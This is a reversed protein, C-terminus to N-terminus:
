LCAWRLELRDGHCLAQLCFRWPGSNPQSGELLLALRVTFFDLWQNACSGVTLGSEIVKSTLSLVDTGAPPNWRVGVPQHRVTKLESAEERSRCECTM